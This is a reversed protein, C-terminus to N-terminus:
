LFVCTPVSSTALCYITGNMPMTCVKHGNIVDLVVIKNNAGMAMSNQEPFFAYPYVSQDGTIESVNYVKDTVDPLNTVALFYHSRLYSSILLTDDTSFWCLSKPGSIKHLIEFSSTDWIYVDIPDSSVAMAGTYNYRAGFVLSSHKYFSGVMEGTSLDDSYVAAALKLLVTSGSPHWDQLMGRLPRRAVLTGTFGDYVSLETPNRTATILRHDCKSFMAATTVDEHSSPVGSASLDQRWLHTQSEVEWVTVSDSCLAALLRSDFSFSLQKCVDSYGPVTRTRLELEATLTVQAEDDHPGDHESRSRIVSWVHVASHESSKAALYM